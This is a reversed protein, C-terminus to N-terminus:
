WLGNYHFTGWDRYAPFKEKTSRQASYFADLKSAGESLANYLAVFFNSAVDTDVPWLCGIVTRVGAIFFSAPLGRPSDCIDMRGLSTECASLTLLDIHRLDRGIMEYAFVVGDSVDDPALYLRQFAPANVQHCGHTSLHVNSSGALAEFFRSRTAQEDIWARGDLIGAIRRAEETAGPLSPLGFPNVESFGMGLATVSLMEGQGDSEGFRRLMVPHPLSTVIWDDALPKGEPGLLHQPYFHLPGHSHICLHDKGAKRYDDLLGPLSGGFFMGYDEALAESAEPVLEEPGPEELLNLRLSAVVPAIWNMSASKGKDSYIITASPLESIGRVLRVEDRTIVLGTYDFMGDSTRGFYQDLLVTRDDLLSQTEEMSMLARTPSEEGVLKRALHSDFAQELNALVESDDRGGVSQNEGAYASLLEDELILSPPEDGTTSATPRIQDIMELLRLAEADTRWDYATGQNLMAAFAGGKAAQFVIWVPDILVQQGRMIHAILAQWSHHIRGAVGPGMMSVLRPGYEALAVAFPAYVKNDGRLALDEGRDFIDLAFRPLGANFGAAMADMYRETANGLEGDNFSDVASNVMFLAPLIRAAGALDSDCQDLLEIARAIFPLAPEDRGLASVSGGLALLAAAFQEVQWNMQGAKEQLVSAAADADGSCSSLLARTDFFNILIKMLFHVTSIKRDESSGSLVLPLIERVLELARAPDSQCISSVKSLCQNIRVDEEERSAVTRADVWSGDSRAVRERSTDDEGEPPSLVQIINQLIAIHHADEEPDLLTLAERAVDVARKHDAPGGAIELWRLAEALAKLSIGREQGTERVALAQEFQSIAMTIAEVQEPMMMEPESAAAIGYEDVLTSRWQRMQGQFNTSMRGAIYPDLYCAGLSHHLDAAYPHDGDNEAIAIAQLGRNVADSFIRGDPLEHCYVSAVQLWRAVLDCFLNEDNRSIGLADLAAFLIRFRLAGAKWDGNFARHWARGACIRIYLPSLSDFFDAGSAREFAFQLAISQSEVQNALLEVPGSDEPFGSPKQQLSNGFNELANLVHNFLPRDKEPQGAIWDGIEPWREPDLLLPNAAAFAFAAQSQEIAAIKRFREIIDM